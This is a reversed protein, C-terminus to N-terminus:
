EPFSVKPDAYISLNINIGIPPGFGKEAEIWLELPLLYTFDCDCFVELGNNKEIALLLPPVLM